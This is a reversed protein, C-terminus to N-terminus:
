KQITELPSVPKADHPTHGISKVYPYGDGEKKEVIKTKWKVVPKPEGTTKVNVKADTTGTVSVELTSLDVEVNIEDVSKKEVVKPFSPMELISPFVPEAAQVIVTPSVLNYGIISSAIFLGVATAVRINM